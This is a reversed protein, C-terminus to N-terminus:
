NEGAAVPDHRRFTVLMYGEGYRAPFPYTAGYLAKRNGLPDYVDTLSFLHFRQLVGFDLINGGGMCNELVLDPHRRLLDEHLQCYALTQEYTGADPSHGHFDRRCTQLISQDHELHDLQLEGAVRELLAPVAGPRCDM